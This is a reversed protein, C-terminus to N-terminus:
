YLSIYALFSTFLFIALLALFLSIALFALSYLSDLLYIRSLDELGGGIKQSFKIRNYLERTQLAYFIFNQGKPM